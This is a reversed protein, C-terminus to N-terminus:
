SCKLLCRLGGGGRLRVRGVIRMWRRGAVLLVLPNVLRALARVARRMRPSREILYMARVM